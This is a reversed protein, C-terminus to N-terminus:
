LPSATRFRDRLGLVVRGIGVLALGVAGGPLPVAHGRRAIARVTGLVDDIGVIGDPVACRDGCAIWADGSRAVLRHVILRGSVPHRFAVVDGRRLGCAHADRALPALTLVDGDRIWPSMSGGRAVLQPTLRSSLLDGVLRAMDEGAVPVVRVPLACGTM